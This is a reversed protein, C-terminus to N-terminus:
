LGATFFDKAFGSFTRFFIPFENFIVAQYIVQGPNDLTRRQCYMCGIHSPDSCATVMTVASVIFFFYVQETPTVDTSSLDRSM